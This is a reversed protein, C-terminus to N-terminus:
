CGGWYGGGVGVVGVRCNGCIPSDPVEKTNGACECGEGKGKLALWEVRGEELAAWGWGKWFHGRRGGTQPDERSSSPARGGAGSM